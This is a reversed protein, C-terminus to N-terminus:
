GKAGQENYKKLLAIKQKVDAIRTYEPYEDAIQQYYKLAFDYKRSKHFYNATKHLGKAREDSLKNSKIAKTKPESEKASDKTKLKVQKATKQAKASSDSKVKSKSVDAKEDCVLVCYSDAFHIKKIDKPLTYAISVNFFDLLGPLMKAPFSLRGISAKSPMIYLLGGKKTKVNFVASVTFKIKLFQGTLFIKTSKDGIALSINKPFSYLGFLHSKTDLIKNLFANVEEQSLSINKDLQKTKEVFSDFDPTYDQKINSKVPFLMLALVIFSIFIFSAALMYIFGKSQSEGLINDASLIDKEENMVM